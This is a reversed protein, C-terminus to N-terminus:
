QQAIKKIEFLFKKNGEIKLYFALGFSQIIYIFSIKLSKNVEFPIILYPEQWYSLKNIIISFVCAGAIYKQIKVKSIM